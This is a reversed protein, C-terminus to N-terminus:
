SHISRTFPLGRVTSIRFTLTTRENRQTSAPTELYAGIIAGIRGRAHLLKTTPILEPHGEPSLRFTTTARSQHRQHGLM